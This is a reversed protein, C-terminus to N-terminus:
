SKPLALKHICGLRGHVRCNSSNGWCGNEWQNTSPHAIILQSFPCFSDHPKSMCVDSLGAAVCVITGWAPLPRLGCCASFPYRGEPVKNLSYAYPVRSLCRTVGVDRGIVFRASHPSSQMTMIKTTDSIGFCCGRLDKTRTLSDMRGVHQFLRSLM